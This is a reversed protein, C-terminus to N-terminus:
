QFGLYHTKTIDVVIPKTQPPTSPLYFPELDGIVESWRGTEELQGWEAQFFGKFQCHLEDTQM